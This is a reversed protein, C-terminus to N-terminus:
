VVVRGMFRARVQARTEPQQGRRRLWAAYGADFQKKIAEGSPTVIKRVGAKTGRVGNVKPM